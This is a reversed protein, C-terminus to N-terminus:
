RAPTLAEIAWASQPGGMPSIEYFVPEVAACRPSEKKLLGVARRSDPLAYKLLVCADYGAARAAVLNQGRLRPALYGEAEDDLGLLAAELAARATDEASGPWKPTGAAWAHEADALELRGDRAEWTEIRAHGVTDGLRILARVRGGEIEIDDAVVSGMPAFEGASFCALYRTAGAQGLFCVEEGLAWRADPLGAGAPLEVTRGAVRLVTGEGRLIAVPLGDMSAFESESRALAAPSLELEAVNGPWKVAFLGEPVSEAVLAGGAFAVRHAQGAYGRAFPKHEVYLPGRPGVPLILPADGACEGAFRGNLYVMGPVRCSIVAVPQM